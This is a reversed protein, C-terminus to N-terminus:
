RSWEIISDYIDDLKREFEDLSSNNDVVADAIESLESDELQSNLRDVIRNLSINDRNYIRDIVEDRPARILIIRDVYADLGSEVLAPAEIICRKEGQHELIKLEKNLESIIYPHTISDLRKKKTEDSFAIRALKSRILSGDADVIDTGFEDVLAKLCDTGNSTVRHALQDCDIQKIGKTKLYRAAYTKGVGSRGVFAITYIQSM